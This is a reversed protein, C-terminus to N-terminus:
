KKLNTLWTPQTYSPLMSLMPELEAGYRDEQRILSLLQTTKFVAICWLNEPVEDFTATSDFNTVSVDIHFEGLAGM